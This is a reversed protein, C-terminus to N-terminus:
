REDSERLLGTEIEPMAKDYEEKLRGPVMRLYIKTIDLNAHGLFAQIHRVDAGGRLLHVAISHRLLHPYVHPLNPGRRRNLYHFVLNLADPSLRDGRQSIFLQGHDPGRLLTRRLALWDKVAAAATTPLPLLRSQGGKGDRIQVTRTVLDIDGLDLGVVEGRRLGCGYLWEIVGVNRLDMVTRRPLGALLAHVDGESLPPDPLDEEGEDPLPLQRAPDTIIRGREHLWRFVQRVLIAFRIRSRKAVGADLQARMLADMDEHTVDATRRCGRARCFRAVHHIKSTYNKLTAQSWGHARGHRLFADFDIDLATSM